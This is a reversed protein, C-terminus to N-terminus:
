IFNTIIAGISRGGDPLVGLSLPHYSQSVYENHQDHTNNRGSDSGYNSGYDAYVDAVAPAFLLLRM